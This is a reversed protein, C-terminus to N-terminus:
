PNLGPNPNPELGGDGDGRSCCQNAHVTFCSNCTTSVCVSHSCGNILSFSYGGQINQMEKSDLVSKITEKNIKLDKKKM